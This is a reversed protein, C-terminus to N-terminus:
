DSSFHFIGGPTSVVVLVIPNMCCGNNIGPNDTSGQPVSKPKEYPLKLVFLSVRGKCSGHKPELRLALEAEAEKKIWRGQVLSIGFM